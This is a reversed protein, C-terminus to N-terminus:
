SAVAAGDAGDILFNLLSVFLMLLVDIIETSVKLM